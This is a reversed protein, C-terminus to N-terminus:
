RGDGAPERDDEAHRAAAEQMARIADAVTVEPESHRSQQEVKSCALDLWDDEQDIRDFAALTKMAALRERCSSSPDQLIAEVQEISEDKVARSVGWRERAAGCLDRMRPRTIPPRADRGAPGAPPQDCDMDKM